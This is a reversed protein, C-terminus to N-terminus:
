ARRHPEDRGLAVGDCPGEEDGQHAAGKATMLHLDRAGKQAIIEELGQLISGADFNKVSVQGDDVMEAQFRKEGGIEVPRISIKFQSGGRRVSQVLKMFGDGLVGSRIEDKLSEDLEFKEM